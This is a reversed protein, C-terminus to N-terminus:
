APSLQVGSVQLFQPAAAVIPLTFPQTFPVGIVAGTTDLASIVLTGPGDAANDFQAESVLLGDVNHTQVVGASDTSVIAISAPTIGTPANTLTGLLKVKYSSM